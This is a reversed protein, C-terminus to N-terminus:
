VETCQAGKHRQQKDTRGVYANGPGGQHLCFEVYVLRCFLCFSILTGKVTILHSPINNETFVESRPLTHKHASVVVGAKEVVGVTGVSLVVTGMVVVPSDTCAMVSSLLLFAPNIANNPLQLVLSSLGQIGNACMSAAAAFTENDSIATSKVHKRKKKRGKPKKRAAGLQWLKWREKMLCRTHSQGRDTHTSVHGWREEKRTGTCDRYTKKMLRASFEAHTLAVTQDASDSPAAEPLRLDKKSSCGSVPM